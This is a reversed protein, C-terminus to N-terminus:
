ESSTVARVYIKKHVVPKKYYPAFEYEAIVRGLRSVALLIREREINEIREMTSEIFSDPLSYKRLRELKKM